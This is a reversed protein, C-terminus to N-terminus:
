TNKRAPLVKAWQKPNSPLPLKHAIAYTVVKTLAEDENPAEVTCTILSGFMARIIVDYNNM